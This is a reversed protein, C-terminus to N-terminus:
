RSLSCLLYRETFFLSGNDPDDGWLRTPLTYLSSIRREQKMIGDQLMEGSGSWRNGHKLFHILANMPLNSEVMDATEYVEVELCEGLTALQHLFSSSVLLMSVTKTNADFRIQIDAGDKTDLPALDPKSTTTVPLGKMIRRMNDSKHGQTEGYEAMLSALDTEKYVKGKKGTARHM